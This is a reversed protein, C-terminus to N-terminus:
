GHSNVLGSKEKSSKGEFIFHLIETPDIAKPEPQHCMHELFIVLPTCHYINQSLDYVMPIHDYLLLFHAGSVNDWLLINMVTSIVCNLPEGSM